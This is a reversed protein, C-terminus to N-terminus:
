VCVLKKTVVLVLKKEQPQGTNKPTYDKGPKFVVVTCCYCVLVRYVLWRAVKLRKEMRSMISYHQTATVVATNLALAVAAAALKDLRIYPALLRFLPDLRSHFGRWM